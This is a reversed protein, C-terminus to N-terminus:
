SQMNSHQTIRTAAAPITTPKHKKKEEKKKTERV